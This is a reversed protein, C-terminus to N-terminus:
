LTKKITELQNLNAIKKAFDVADKVILAIEAILAVGDTAVAAIIMAIVKLFTELWAYRDMNSFTGEIITWLIDLANSDKILYYLAEARKYASGGAKNWAKAFEKLAEQLKSSSKIKRAAKDLAKDVLKKSSVSIGALSMALCYAECLISAYQKIKAWEIDGSELLVRAPELAKGETTLEVLHKGDSKKTIDMEITQFDFGERLIKMRPPPFYQALRKGIDDALPQGAFM